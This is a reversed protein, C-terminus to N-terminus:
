YKKIQTLVWDYKEQEYTSNCYECTGSDNPNMPAGCSDCKKAIGSDAADIKKTFTLHYNYRERVSNNGEIVQGNNIDMIYEIYRAQILVTVYYYNDQIKINTILTDKINLEDYMQRYNQPRLPKLIYEGYAYVDNNIFHNVEQLNDTMIATLYKIFINNCKSIFMAPNFSKNIKKFEEITM